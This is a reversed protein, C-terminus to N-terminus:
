GKLILYEDGEWLVECEGSTPDALYKESIELQGKGWNKHVLVFGGDSCINEVLHLAGSYSVRIEIDNEDLLLQLTRPKFFGVQNTTESARVEQSLVEVATTLGESRFRNEMFNPARLLQPSLLFAVAVLGLGFRQDVKLRWDRIEGRGKESRSVRSELLLNKAIEVGQLLFLLMLPIYPLIYRLSYLGDERMRAFLLSCTLLFTIGVFSLKGKPFLVGVFVLTTCALVLPGGTAPIWEIQYRYTDLIPILAALFDSIDRQLSVLGRAFTRVLGILLSSTDGTPVGGYQNMGMRSAIVVSYFQTAVGAFAVLLLIRLRHRRNFAFVSVGLAIVFLLIEPRTFVGIFCLLFVHRFNPAEESFDELRRFKVFIESLIWMFLFTPQAQEFREIFISSSLLILCFAVAELRIKGETTRNMQLSLVYITRGFFLINVIGIVYFNLGLALDLAGVLIPFIPLVAPYNQLNFGPNRLDFINRGMLFYQAFDGGLDQANTFVRVVFFTTYLGIFLLFYLRYKKIQM